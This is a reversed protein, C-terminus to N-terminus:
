RLEQAENSQPKKRRSAGRVQSLLAAGDQTGERMATWGKGTASAPDKQYTYEKIGM